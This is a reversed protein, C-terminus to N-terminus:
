GDRWGGAYRAEDVKDTLVCENQRVNFLEVLDRLRKDLGDGAVEIQVRLWKHDRRAM